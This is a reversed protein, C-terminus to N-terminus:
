YGGDDDLGCFKYLVYLIVILLLFFGLGYQWDCVVESTRHTCEM